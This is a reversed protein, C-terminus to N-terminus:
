FGCVKSDKWCDYQYDGYADADDQLHDSANNCANEYARDYLGNDSNLEEFLEDISSFQFKITKDNGMPITVIEIGNTTEWEIDDDIEITEDSLKYVMESFHNHIIESMLSEDNKIDDIESELWSESIEM